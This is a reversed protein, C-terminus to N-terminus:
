RCVYILDLYSLYLYNQRFGSVPDSLTILVFEFRTSNLSLHHAHAAMFLLRDVSILPMTQCNRGVDVSAKFVGTRPQYRISLYAHDTRKYRM